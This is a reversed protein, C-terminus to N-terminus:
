QVIMAHIILIFNATIKKIILVTNKQLLSIYKIFWFSVNIHNKLLLHGQTQELQVNM